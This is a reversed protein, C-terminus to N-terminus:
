DAPLAPLTQGYGGTKHRHGHRCGPFSAPPRCRPLKPRRAGSRPAEEKKTRGAEVGTGATERWVRLTVGGQETFKVANNLLNLLVQEVRRQDGVMTGVEPALEVRLALSKAEALPKVIGAVRGISARLDFPDRTVELQGAEIKSIDLVDNILELLHRASTRVMDLQKRQEPNLPGPLGQLLIGTFGIISNLPTRLEHSMTALFASKLRDASEARDRAVALEATREAVRRELSANLQRVADEAQKRETIDHIIAVNGASPDDQRIPAVTLIVNRLSGDSCRMRSETSALGTEQLHAYLERGVRDFEEDSEYLIRTSSGILRQEPYGFKECWLKNVSKHVRNQLIGIGVPAAKFMGRITAESERLVKEANEREASSRLATLGYGLDNALEMLLAVEPEDFADPSASYIMLAGFAKEQALLPLTLSSNFGRQIAAERWPAFSPHAPINRAIVPEGARLATGTPGRGRETDAWTLGLSDLYGDENGARAVPRVTKMEDQEAFGVWAFRYGGTEVVIHCIRDLLEAENAAHIVAQNCDSIARLARNLRRLEEEAQQRAALEDRLANTREAVTGSLDAQSRALVFVLLSLLFIMAAGALHFLLVPIGTSAQWGKRPCAGAEWAGEPLGIRRTIPQQEFVAPSGYFVGGLERRIALRVDGASDESIGAEALLPAINLVVAVMRAPGGGTRPLPERIIIGLGGQVLDIPGTVVIRGTEQARIVDGGIVPRPDTLLNYGLVSENGKLPYTYTIVGDSVIQFARIWQASAHLGAAYANFQEVDVAGGGSTQHTVFGALSQLNGVIRDLSRQLAGAQLELTHQTRTRQEDALRNALGKGLWLMPPTLLLLPLAGWLFAKIRPNM